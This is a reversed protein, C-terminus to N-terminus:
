SSLPVKDVNYGIATSKPLPNDETKCLIKDVIMSLLLDRFTQEGEFIPVFEMVTGKIAM